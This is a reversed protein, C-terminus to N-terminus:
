KRRLFAVGLIILLGIIGPEPTLGIEIDNGNLQFEVQNDDSYFATEDGGSLGTSSILTYVGNIPLTVRDVNVTISDVGSPLTLTGSATITDASSGDIEWDYLSGANMTLNGTNLIGISNGPAITGGALITSNGLTGTGFVKTGDQVTLLSSASIDGNVRLNGAEVVTLGTYNNNASLILTQSGTKKLGGDATGGLAPDHLIPESIERGNSNNVEFIAGSAQVINSTGARLWNYNGGEAHAAYDGDSMTGGNFNIVSRPSAESIPSNWTGSLEIKSGSNLNLISGASAGAFRTLENRAVAGSNLTLASGSSFIIFENSSIVSANAISLEAGSEISFVSGISHNGGSILCTGNFAWARDSVNLKGSVGATLEILSGSDDSNANMNFRTLQQSNNNLDLVVKEAIGGACNNNVIVLYHNPFANNCNLEFRADGNCTDILTDAGSYTGPSNINIIQGAGDHEYFHMSGTGIFNNNINLVTNNGSISIGTRGSPWNLSFTGNLSNAGEDVELGYDDKSIINANFGHNGSGATTIKAGDEVTIDGSNMTINEQLFLETGSNLTIEANQLANNGFIGLKGETIDATGSISHSEFMLLQGSGTKTFGDSGRLDTAFGPFGMYLRIGGAGIDITKMGDITLNGNLFVYTGATSPTSIKVVGVTPSIGNLYLYKPNGDDWTNTFAAKSGSGNAINGGFWNASDNWNAAGTASKSWGGDTIVYDVGPTAPMTSNPAHNKMMEGAEYALRLYWDSPLSYGDADLTLWTGQDPTEASTPSTKYIATSENVEDFMSVYIMNAGADVSNYVQRWLFNGGNRPIDNLPDGTLNHWSFGPWIVSAYDIGVSDTEALDPVIRSTKWSDAGSNNNYRGVTWPSIADFSRYVTAWGSATRSDENLTRWGGPVGGFVTARYQAPADTQFWDIVNQADAPDVPPHIGNKFGFGWIGLVPKGNQKLYRDNGTMGSDVLTIWDNTMREFFTSEAAGSIDYMTAIVRGYNEASALLNERVAKMHNAYAPDDFSQIFLQAFVGDIGYEKMWRVHRNVVKYNRGSYLKASTGNMTMPTAELDEADFETLDPYMDTALNGANPPNSDTSWHYWADFPNDDNPTTFWGQYGCMIKNRFTTSDVVPSKEIIDIENIVSGGGKEEKQQWGSWDWSDIVGRMIIKISRVNDALNEGTTNNFLRAVCNSNAYVDYYDGWNGFSVAGLYTYDGDATGTTTAYYVEGYTFLRTDGHQSFIRVEQVAKPADFACRMIM